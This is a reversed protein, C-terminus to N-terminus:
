SAIWCEELKDFGTSAGFEFGKVYSRMVAYETEYFLPITGAEDYLIQCAQCIYGEREEESTALEANEVIGALTGEQNEYYNVWPEPINFWSLQVCVTHTIWWGWAMRLDYDRNNVRDWWAGGEIDHIKVDIGVEKLQSQVVVAVDREWVWHSSCIIFDLELPKGHKDLVGNNDTDSWGAEALLQKAKDLDYAYGKGKCCDPVGPLLPSLFMSDTAPTAYGSFVGDVIEQRNIAYCMAKRVKIGDAGSFPEKWWATSILYMMTSPRSVITIGPDKELYPLADGPANHERYIYDIDGKILAMVRTQPDAIAKFVIKDLKPKHFDLKDRWNYRRNLVIKQKQISEEEDVYYPELGNYRKKSKLSGKIDWAPEVDLPSIFNGLFSRGAFDHPMDLWGETFHVKLTHEDIVETSDYYKVSPFAIYRKAYGYTIIRDLNFKVVSATLPTGDAFRVGERLHFTLTDYDASVEYSEALWPIINGDGDLTILPAGHTYGTAISRGGEDPFYRSSLTPDKGYEKSYIDGRIGIKLTGGGKGLIMLEIYTIDGVNVRGDQNADALENTPKKGLIILGVYTVDRMDIKGDENADGYLQASATPISAVLMATVLVAITGFAVGKRM